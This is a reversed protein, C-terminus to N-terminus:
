LFEIHGSIKLTAHYRIAIAQEGPVVSKLITLALRAM